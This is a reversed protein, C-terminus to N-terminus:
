YLAIKERLEKDVMAAKRVGHLHCPLGVVAFKESKQSQVIDKLAINAPVPCYKSRSAEIIEQKTRAIFPFPILPNDKNMRVVLAGNIIGKKLASILVQTILGGSASDYRINTDTAYGLYCNLYNGLLYNEPDKKFIELNLQRFDVLPGPCVRLCIGCNDCREENIRPVYGGLKENIILDIAEKPCLAVCTGCGTCLANNIVTRTKEKRGM